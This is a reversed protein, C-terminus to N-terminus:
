TKKSSFMIHGNSLDFNNIKCLLLKFWGRKYLTNQIVINQKKPHNKLCDQSIPTPTLPYLGRNPSPGLLITLNLKSEIPSNRSIGGFSPDTYFCICTGIKSCHKTNSILGIHCKIGQDIM